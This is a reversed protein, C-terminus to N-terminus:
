IGVVKGIAVKYLPAMLEIGASNPHINDNTNNLTVQGNGDVPGSLVSAADITIIGRAACTALLEANWAVRKSDSSGWAVGAFNAPIMTRVIPIVGYEDCLGLLQYTGARWAAVMADTIPSGDNPTGCPFIMVDPIVGAALINKAAALYRTMPAGALGCTMHSFRYTSQQANLLETARLAQNAGRNTAGIAEDISDGISAVTIMPRTTSFALGVLPFASDLAWGSTATTQDGAASNRRFRVLGEPRTAWSDYTAGTTGVLKVTATTNLFARVAVLPRTGGDTRAVPSLTVDDSILWDVLSAGPNVTAATNATSFLVTAAGSWAGDLDTLAGIAKIQAQFSFSGPGTGRGFLLAMSGFDDTPLEYAFEWTAGPSSPTIDNFPAGGVLHVGYNGVQLGSLAFAKAQRAQGFAAAGIPDVM